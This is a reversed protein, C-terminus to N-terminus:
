ERRSSKTLERRDLRFTPVRADPIQSPDWMDARQHRGLLERAASRYDDAGVSTPAYLTIPLQFSPAEALAIAERIITELVTGGYGDRLRQVIERAHRTRNVRCAIIADLTLTTNLRERIADMTGTLSVLGTLALVRTEVPIIVSGCVALPAVALSGQTPPCDVLVYDWADPLRELSGIIGLGIAIEQSRDAAVLWPSSPVLEVGPTTTPTVMPVLDARSLYADLVSRDALPRGLWNTASGQPDMDVVLVRQALEALAAALNVVTTTKASGGKHNTIAILRM